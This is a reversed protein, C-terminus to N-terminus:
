SDRLKKMRQVIKRINEPEVKIGHDRELITSIRIDKYEGRKLGLEKRSKQYYYWILQNRKNTETKRIVKEGKLKGFVDQKVLQWHHDLYNKVMPLSADEGIYLRIFKKGSKKWTAEIPSFSGVPLSNNIEEFECSFFDQPLKPLIYFDNTAIYMELLLAAGLPLNYKILINDMKSNLEGKEDFSLVKGTWWKEFDLNSTFGYAPIKYEKRIDKIDTQFSIRQVVRQLMEDLADKEIKEGSM